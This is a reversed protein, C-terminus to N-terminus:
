ERMNGRSGLIKNRSMRKEINANVKAKLTQSPAQERTVGFYLRGLTVTLLM